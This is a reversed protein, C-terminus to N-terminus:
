TNFNECNPWNSLRMLGNAFFHFDFLFLFLFVFKLIFLHLQTNYTLKISEICAFWNWMSSNNNRKEDITDAVIQMRETKTDITKCQQLDLFINSKLRFKIRSMKWILSLDFWISLFSFFFYYYFQQFWVDLWRQRHLTWTLHWM